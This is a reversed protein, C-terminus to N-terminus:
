GDRQRGEAKIDDCIIDASQDPSDDECNSQRREIVSHPAARRSRHAPLNQREDERQKDAEDKQKRERQQSDLGRPLRILEEVVSALNALVAHRSRRNQGIQGKAGAQSTPPVRMKGMFAPNAVGHAFEIGRRRALQPAREACADDM